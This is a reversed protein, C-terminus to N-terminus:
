RMLAMQGRLSRIKQAQGKMDNEQLGAAMANMKDLLERTILAKQQEMLSRTETVSKATILQFLFCDEPEMTESQVQLAVDRLHLLRQVVDMAKNKEATSIMGMLVPMFPGKLLQIQGRLLASPDQAELAGSILSVSAQYVNRQVQARQQALAKINADIRSRMTELSKRQSEDEATEILLSLELLFEYDFKQPATHVLALVVEQGGELYWQETLLLVLEQGELGEQMKRAIDEVAMQQAQVRQGAETKELIFRLLKQLEQSGEAGEPTQQVMQSIQLVFNRDVLNTDADLLRQLDETQEGTAILRQLLVMQAQQRQRMERTIGQFEWLTDHLRSMSMYQRPTLMYGKRDAPAVKAMFNASLQGILTQPSVQANGSEAVVVGLFEKQPLHVMVPFDLRFANRCASCTLTDLQGSLLMNLLEPNAGYDQIPFVLSSVQSKCQPCVVQISRPPYKLQDLFKRFNRAQDQAMAHDKEQQSPDSESAGLGAPEIDTGLPAAGIPKGGPLILEQTNGEPESQGPIWLKDNM